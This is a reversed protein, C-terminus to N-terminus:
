ESRAKSFAVVVVVVVVDVVVVAEAFVVRGAVTSASLLFKRFDDSSPPSYPSHPQPTHIPAKKIATKNIM